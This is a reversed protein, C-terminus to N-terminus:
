ARYSEHLQDLAAWLTPWEARHRAMVKRHYAPNPGSEDIARIIADVAVSEDTVPGRPSTM